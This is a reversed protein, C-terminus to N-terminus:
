LHHLLLRYPHLVLLRAMIHCLSQPYRIVSYLLLSDEYPGKIAPRTFFAFTKEICDRFSSTLCSSVKMCRLASPRMEGARKMM